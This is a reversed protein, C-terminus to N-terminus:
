ADLEVVRQRLLRGVEAATAPDADDDSAPIRETLRRLEDFRAWAVPVAAEVRGAVEATRGSLGDSRLFRLGAHSDLTYMKAAIRQYVECARNALATLEADLTSM